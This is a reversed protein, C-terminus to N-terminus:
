NLQPPKHKNMQRRRKNKQKSVKERGLVGLERAKGAGQPLEHLRVTGHDM